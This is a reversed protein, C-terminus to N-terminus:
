IHNTGSLIIDFTLINLGASLKFRSKASKLRPEFEKFAEGPDRLKLQDWGPKRNCSILCSNISQCFLLKSSQQKNLAWRRGLIKDKFASYLRDFPHRAAIIGPRFLFNFCIPFSNIRHWLINTSYLTFKLLFQVAHMFKLIIPLM